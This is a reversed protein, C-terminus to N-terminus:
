LNLSFTAPDVGIKRIAKSLSKLDLSVGPKLLYKDAEGKNLEIALAIDNRTSLVLSKDFPILEYTERLIGDATFYLLDLEVQTNKMWFARKKKNSFVFAMGHRQPVETRYMLGKEQTEPTLALELFFVYEGIRVDFYKKAKNAINANPAESAITQEIFLISLLYCTFIISAKIM